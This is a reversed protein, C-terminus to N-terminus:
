LMSPIALWYFARLVFVALISQIIKAKAESCRGGFNSEPAAASYYAIPQTSSAPRLIIIAQCCSYTLM